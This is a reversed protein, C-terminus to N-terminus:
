SNAIEAVVRGLDERVRKAISELDENGVISLM